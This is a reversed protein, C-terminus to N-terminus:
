FTTLMGDMWKTLHHTCITMPPKKQSQQRLVALQEGLTGGIRMERHFAINNSFYIALQLKKGNSCAFQTVYRDLNRIAWDLVEDMTETTVEM